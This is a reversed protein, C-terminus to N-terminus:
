RLGGRDLTRDLLRITAARQAAEPEETDLRYRAYDALLTHMGYSDGDLITILHEDVLRDLLSRVHEVPLDALAAADGASFSASPHLALLRFLRRQAPELVRYSLAFVERLGDSGGALEGLRDEGAAMLEALKRVGGVSRSRVRRAALEIALPLRGCLDALWRVADPDARAGAEGAMGSLLEAAASPSLVDLLLSQSGDVALTRRSTVLVLSAPGAPLLPAIQAEDAADDLLVLARKGALRDRYLAAREGLDEPMRDAPVGLVRLFAALVTAPDAPTRGRRGRLDVYLQHDAYHGAAVLRHAMHVALRTKGVGAMGQLVHVPVATAGVAAAVAGRLAALETDRGVFQGVDPPLRRLVPVPEHELPAPGQALVQVRARELEPGPDAGLEEALRRRLTDFVEIAAARRGCGALAVMLAAHAAEHLPDAETVQGLVPLVAEHRGLEAAVTAYEVAAAQWQRTLSAVVPHSRLQPLDAVPDGRWLRVAHAFSGAAEVLEGAARERRARALLARFSLLDVQEDTVTLQYGGPVARLLQGSRPSDPRLLRRLRSIRSQVSDPSTSRVRGAIEALSQRSVAVNPTLALSALLVRQIQSGLDLQTRKVVVRLPGLVDVRVGSGYAGGYWATRSLEVAEEHSLRLAAALKRLTSARPSSVRGQEVDRLAAVSLGALMAAERQTLRARQRFNRILAGLDPSAYM